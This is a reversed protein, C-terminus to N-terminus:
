KAGQLRIRPDLTVHVIEAVLRLLMLLVGMTVLVGLIVPTDVNRVADFLATSLGGQYYVCSGSLPDSEACPGIQVEWEIIILGTLLFPLASFSRSIVPLAVNRGVHRDRIEHEPVGKGRATLVYDEVREDAIGARWVFMAEGFALLLFAAIALIPSGAGISVQQTSRFFFVDAMQPGVGLRIVAVVVAALVVPLVLFPLTRWGRRKAFGRLLLAILLAILLARGGLSVLDAETYPTDRFLQMSDIPLGLASRASVLPDRGFYVLLFVLLPPFLTYFTMGVGTTMARGFRDFHWEAMRGLWSGLLYALIGGVAFILLTSPLSSAMLSTVSGGGFSDGLDGQLLGGMYTLYQEHLPRDLGLEHRMQAVEDPGCFPCNLEAYDRPMLAHVLFFVATVFIALTLISAGLRRLLYAWM